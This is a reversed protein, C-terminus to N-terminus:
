ADAEEAVTQEEAPKAAPQVTKKQPVIFTGKLRLGKRCILFGIVVILGYYILMFVRLGLEIGSTTLPVIECITGSLCLFGGFITLIWGCIKKM